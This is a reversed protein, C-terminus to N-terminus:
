KKIYYFDEEQGNELNTGTGDHEFNNAELFHKLKGRIETSEQDFTIKIM